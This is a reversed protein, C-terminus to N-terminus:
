QITIAIGPTLTRWDAGSQTCAAELSYCIDMTLSYTGATGIQLNDQWPGDCRNTPGTCGPNIALDGSWSTHFFGSGSGSLRTVNVGLIGYYVLGPTPNNLTEVFCVNENVAFTTRGGCTTLQGTLVHGTVVSFTPTATPTRTPTPTITPTKSPTPTNTATPTNSPTLTPLKIVIPVYVFVTPTFGALLAAVHDANLPFLLLGLLLVVIAVQSLRKM